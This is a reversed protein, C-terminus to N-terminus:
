IGPVTVDRLEDVDLDRILKVVTEKTRIEGNIAIDKLVQMKERGIPCFRCRDVSKIKGFVTRNKRSKAIACLPDKCESVNIDLMNILRESNEIKWLEELEAVNVRDNRQVAKLIFDWKKFHLEKAAKVLEWHKENTDIRSHNMKAMEESEINFASLTVEPAYKSEEIAEQLEEMEESLVEKEEPTPREMYENENLFILIGIAENKCYDVVLIDGVELNEPSPFCVKSDIKM